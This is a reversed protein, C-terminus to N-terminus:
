RNDILNLLLSSNYQFISALRIEMSIQIVYESIMTMVNRRRIDLAFRYYVSHHIIVRLLPVRLRFRHKMAPTFDAM